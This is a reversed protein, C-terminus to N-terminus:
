QEETDEANPNSNRGLKFASHIQTRHYTILLKKMAEANVTGVNAVYADVKDMFLNDDRKSLELRIAAKM